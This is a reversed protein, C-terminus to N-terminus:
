SLKWVGTTREVIQRTTVFASKFKKERISKPFPVPTLLYNKYGYGSDGILYSVGYKGSETEGQLKSFNFIM